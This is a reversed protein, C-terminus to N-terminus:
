FRSSTLKVDSGAWARRLREEAEAAGASDGQARLSAMLGHLSWGNEPFRALDERYVAEAEAARGADLLVAGLHHRVPYPWDPPEVYILGDELAAARRLHEIGADARGSAAALEGALVEIAIALISRTSNTGSPKMTELVDDTAIRRLERLETQAAELRDQGTLAMGRAFHWIGSPYPLDAAPRAARLVDNWRGFRVNVFMPAMRFHQLAVFGPARMLQTDVTAALREVSEVAQAQRGAMSAAFSLFHHNHPYYGMPYLGTPRERAIYTEDAHVAHVNSEIADAYRGVRIYIHAPMHVIHGAGPMLSALREACAVAREPYAAEVAHIYFHCAGPHNPDTAIVRDLLALMQPTDPRPQKKATWYNWPSLDMLAEAALTAADPDDAYRRALDTMARAYATDLAARAAPPLPAYRVSLARIYAREKESAADSLREANQMAAYALVGSASDMAANINPGYALATGWHCIACTPDLRAAERFARIAEAHNFAYTLRLGQDFYRQAAPVRTSIEHHLTGLDAYLPVTDAAPAPQLVAVLGALHLVNM